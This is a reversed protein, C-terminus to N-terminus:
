VKRGRQAKMFQEITFQAKVTTVNALLTCVYMCLTQTCVTDIYMTDTDMCHRHVNDTYTCHRHLVTDTDM